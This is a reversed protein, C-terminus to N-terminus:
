KKRPKRTLLSDKAGRFGFSKYFKILQDKDMQSGGQPVAYLTLTIGLNDALRTIVKLVYSGIGLRLNDKNEVELLDIKVSDDDVTLNVTVYVYGPFCWRSKGDEIKEGFSIIKDVFLENSSFDLKQL